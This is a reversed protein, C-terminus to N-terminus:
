AIVRENTWNCPPVILTALVGPSPDVNLKVRGTAGYDDPESVHRITRPIVSHNCGRSQFSGLPRRENATGAARERAARPVPAAGSGAAAQAAGPGAWAPAGPKSSAPASTAM